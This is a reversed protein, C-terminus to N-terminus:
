CSRLVPKTVRPVEPAINRGASRTSQWTYQHRYLDSRSEHPLEVRGALSSQGPLEAVSPISTSANSSPIPHYHHHFEFVISGPHPSEATLAIKLFRACSPRSCIGPKPIEGPQLPHSEHYRASRRKGCLLCTHMQRKAPVCFEDDKYKRLEPGNLFISRCLTLETGSIIHTVYLCKRGVQRLVKM